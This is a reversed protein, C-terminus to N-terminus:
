RSHVASRIKATEDVAILGDIALGDGTDSVLYRTTSSYLQTAAEGHKRLLLWNVSALSAHDNLGIVDTVTGVVQSVQLRRYMRLLRNVQRIFQQRDAVEKGGDARYFHLPFRYFNAIQETDGTEFHRRYQLFLKNIAELRAKHM